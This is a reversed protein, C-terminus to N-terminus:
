IATQARIQGAARSDSVIVVQHFATFQDSGAELDALWNGFVNRPGKQSAISISLHTM